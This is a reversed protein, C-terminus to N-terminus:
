PQLHCVAGASGAAAKQRDADWMYPCPGSSLSLPPHGPRDAPTAACTAACRRTASTFTYSRRRRTLAGHSSLHVAPQRTCHCATSLWPRRASCTIRIRPPRAASLRRGGNHVVRTEHRQVHSPLWDTSWGGLWRWDSSWGGLWGGAAAHVGVPLQGPRRDPLLLVPHDDRPLPVHVAPLLLAWYPM